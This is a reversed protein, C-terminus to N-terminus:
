RGSANVRFLHHHHAVGEVRMQALAYTPFPGECENPSRSPHAPHAFVFGKRENPSRSPALPAM